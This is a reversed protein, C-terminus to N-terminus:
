QEGAQTVLSSVEVSRVGYLKEIRRCIEEALIEARDADEHVLVVKLFVDSRAM